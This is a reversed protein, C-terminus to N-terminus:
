VGGLINVITEARMGLLFLFGIGLFIVLYLLVKNNSEFLSNVLMYSNNDHGKSTLEQKTENIALQTSLRQIEEVIDDLKGDLKGITETLTATLAELKSQAKDLGVVKEELDCVRIELKDQQAKLQVIDRKLDKVIETNNEV